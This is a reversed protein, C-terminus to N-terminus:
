TKKGKLITGSKFGYPSNWINLWYDMDNAIGTMVKVRSENESITQKAETLKETLERSRQRNFAYEHDWECLGYVPAPRLLCSEEPVFINIGRRLAELIFFHCGPRQAYWETGAGMDIGYLSIQNEPDKKDEIELIALAMMLSISSTLFYATFNHEVRELPYIVHNPIEPIPGGTYVPGPFAKLFKVYEECHWPM